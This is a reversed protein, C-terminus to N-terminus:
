VKSTIGDIYQKIQESIKKYENIYSKLSDHNNQDSKLKAIKTICYHFGGFFGHTKEYSTSKDKTRRHSPNPNIKEKVAYGHEDKTIFFPDLLPDTIVQTSKRRSM